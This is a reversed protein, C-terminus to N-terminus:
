NLIYIYIIMVYPFKLYDIHGNLICVNFILFSKLTVGLEICKYYLALCSFFFLNKIISACYNINYMNKKCLLKLSFFTIDHNSDEM